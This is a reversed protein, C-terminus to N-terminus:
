DFYIIILKDFTSDINHQAKLKDYVRYTASSGM